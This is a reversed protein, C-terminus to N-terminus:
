ELGMAESSLRLDRMLTVLSHAQIDRLFHLSSVPQIRQLFSLKCHEGFQGSILHPLVCRIIRLTIGHTKELLESLDALVTRLASKEAEADSPGSVFVTLNTLQRAM